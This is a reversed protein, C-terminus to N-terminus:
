LYLLRYPQSFVFVLKGPKFIFTMLQIYLKAYIKISHRHEYLACMPTGVTACHALSRTNDRHCCLNLGWNLVTTLFSSNVCSHCLDCSHSPNLGKGLFKQMGFVFFFFFFLIFQAMCLCKVMNFIYNVPLLLKVYQCMSCLLIQIFLLSFM